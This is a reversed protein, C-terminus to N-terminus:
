EAGDPHATKADAVLQDLRRALALRLESLDRPVADDDERKEKKESLRLATVERLTRALSALTRARREAETRQRPAVYQGGQFVISKLLGRDILSQLVTQLEERKQACLADELQEVPMLCTIRDLLYAHRIIM